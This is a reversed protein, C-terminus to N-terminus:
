GAKALPQALGTAAKPKLEDRLVIVEPPADIGLRVRGDTLRLITITINDGIKIKETEKRSLVLM